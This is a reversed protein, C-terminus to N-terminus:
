SWLVRRKLIGILNLPLLKALFGFMASKDGGSKSWSNDGGNEIKGKSYEKDAWLLLGLGTAYSPEILEAPAIGNFSPVGKRTQIALRRQVLAIMGPLNSAGGTIVLRIQSPDGLNAKDLHIKILKVLEQARERTLQCIDILPVMLESGEVLLMPIEEDIRKIQLETSAHLLKIKEAESYKTNFTMAIDNTFQWGGVPIVGTYCIRGGKFGVVDTTGGGIDILLSGRAMEEPTLVALGSALPELVLGEVNIGSNKVAAVLRNIFTSDGSVIHTDAKVNDTHMGLPNRIGEEGDLSYSMRISHLLRRNEGLKSSLGIEPQSLDSETIVGAKSVSDISHRRNEFEIHTGTIGVFASRIEIGCNSRVSEISQRIAREADAVRDVAGKRVGDSPVSSYGVIELNGSSARSAVITCVKTTGVDIATVLGLNNVPTNEPFVVPSESQPELRANNQTVTAM